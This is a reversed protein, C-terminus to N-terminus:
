RTDGMSSVGMRTKESSKYVGHQFEVKSDCFLYKLTSTGHEIVM